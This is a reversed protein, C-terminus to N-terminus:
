FRSGQEPAEGWWFELEQRESGKFKQVKEFEKYRIVWREAARDASILIM